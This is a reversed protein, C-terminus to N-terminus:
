NSDATISLKENHALDVIRLFVDTPQNAKGSGM